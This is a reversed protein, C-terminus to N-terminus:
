DNRVGNHETDVALNDIVSLGMTILSERKLLESAPALSTILAAVGGKQLLKYGDDLAQVEVLEILPHNKRIVDTIHLGSLLAVKQEHFDSLTAKAGGSVPHLLGWPMNWYPETFTLFQEREPTSSISALMDIERNKAANILSQWNDYPVIIFKSGIREGILQMIDPNIGSLDGYHNVFEMPSWNTTMGVKITPHSALWQKQQLSLALRQSQQEFFSSQLHILWKKELDILRQAPLQEFGDIIMEKLAENENNVLVHISIKEAEDNLLSYQHSLKTQELLLSFSQVESIVGDIVNSQAPMLADTLNEYHLFHIDPYKNELSSLYPADASVAIKLESLDDVHNIDTLKDSIFFQVNSQYLRYIPAIDENLAVDAFSLNVDALNQSIKNISQSKTAKVFDVEVGTKDSWYRWLDVLLGEINGKSTLQIFPAKAHNYTILLRERKDTTGLWERVIPLYSEKSLQNAIKPLSSLEVNFILSWYDFRKHSPFLVKLQSIELASLHTSLDKKGSNAYAM